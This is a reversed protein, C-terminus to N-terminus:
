RAAKSAQIAQSRRALILGILVIAAALGIRIGWELPKPVAGFTRQVFDHEVLM